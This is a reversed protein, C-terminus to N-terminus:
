KEQFMHDPFAKPDHPCNVGSDVVGKLAAYIRSKSKFNKVGTDFIVKEIKKEKCMVGALLATLYIASTNKISHNWGFEKLKSSTISLLTLDGDIKYDIVQVRVLTNSLRVIFRKEQSRLLKLRKNYDTKQERKRRFPVNYTPGIKM